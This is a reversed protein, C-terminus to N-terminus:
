EANVERGRAMGRDGSGAEPYESSSTLAPSRSVAATVSEPTWDRRGAVRWAWLGDGESAAATNKPLRDNTRGWRQAVAPILASVCRKIGSSGMPAPSRTPAIADWESGRLTSSIHSAQDM